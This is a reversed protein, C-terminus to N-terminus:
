EGHIFKKKNRHQIRTNQVTAIKETAGRSYRQTQAIDSHTAAHKVHELDAGAETAETIGGARSDMSRVEKPVGAATAVKRWKRRYETDTWPLGTIDCIVVPGHSPLLPRNITVKKTIDNVIILPQDGIMMQFEEVVMPALKLDIELIKQKKSTRHKLILSEDISDWRLGRLWKEGDHRVDTEGMEKEPVWEGIVDKQRLLLEFQLAQALAISPWGFLARTTDRIANAQDATLRDLRPPGHPFKMCHLVMSIRDCEANELMSAGFGCMTRIQAIFAHAMSFKGGASWDMHWETLERRKIAILEVHGHAARLRKLISAANKRSHYRLAHFTSVRDTTYADILDGLSFGKANPVESKEEIM